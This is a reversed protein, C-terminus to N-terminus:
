RNVVTGGSLSVVAMKLKEMARLNQPARAETRDMGGRRLSPSHGMPALELPNSAPVVHGGHRM